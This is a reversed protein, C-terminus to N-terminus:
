DNITKMWGLKKGLRQLWDSQYDNEVIRQIKDASTTVKIHDDHNM